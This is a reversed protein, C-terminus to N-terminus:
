EDRQEQNCSYQPYASTLKFKIATENRPSIDVACRAYQKRYHSKLWKHYDGRDVLVTSWDSISKLSGRIEGAILSRLLDGYSALHERLAKTNHSVEILETSDHSHFTLALNLLIRADFIQHITSTTENLPQILNSNVLPLLDDARLRVLGALGSRVIQYRLESFDKNSLYRFRSQRIFENYEILSLVKADDTNVFNDSLRQDIWHTVPEYIAYNGLPALDSRNEKCARKWELVRAPNSLLAYANITLQSQKEVLPWIQFRQRMTDFPRALAFMAAVVDKLMQLEKVTCRDMSDWLKQENINPKISIQKLESWTVRCSPCRILIEGRWKFPKHCHPCHNHLETCHVPCSSFMPLQWRWDFLGNNEVCCSLCIRPSAIRIDGVEHILDSWMRVHHREAIKWFVHQELELAQALKPILTALLENSWNRMDKPLPDTVGLIACLRSIDRLGNKRAITLLYGPWSHQHTPPFRVPLPSM